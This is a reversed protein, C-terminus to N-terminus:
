FYVVSPGNYVISMAHCFSCVKCSCLMLEVQTADLTLSCLETILNLSWVSIVPRVVHMFLNDKHGQLLCSNQPLHTIHKSPLQPSDSSVLVSTRQRYHRTGLTPRFVNHSALMGSIEPHPTCHATSGRLREHTSSMLAQMQWSCLSHFVSPGDELM